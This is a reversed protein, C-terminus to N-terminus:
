TPTWGENQQVWDCHVVQDTSWREYYNAHLVGSLLDLVEPSLGLCKQALKKLPSQDSRENSLIEVTRENAPYRHLGRALVLYRFLIDSPMPSRWGIQGTLMNFLIVAAGWLDCSKPDFPYNLYVEPPLYAAKGFGGKGSVNSGDSPIAVSMALDNFVIRGNIIMANDPSLDRHAVGRQHLYIMNELVNRFVQLATQENVGNRWPIWEVLSEKECFPMVIYLYQEDEIAEVIGLVHHNDGLQQMLSIEKYPNEKGGERLSKQVVAKRLRKIAVLKADEQRPCYFVNHQGEVRPLIVGFYVCGWGAGHHDLSKSRKEEIKAYAHTPNHAKVFDVKPVQQQHEESPIVVANPPNSIAPEIVPPADLDIPRFTQSPPPM